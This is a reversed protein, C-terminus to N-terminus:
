SAAATAAVEAAFDVAKKEVGEGLEFRVFRRVSVKEGMKGTLEDCMQKVSRPDDDRFSPQEELCSETIWKDLRGQIIKQKAEEPRSKGSEKEEEAIQAAYLAKQKEVMEPTVDERRVFQASMSAIQLGVHKVLTLFDENKAMFDTQCNVEVLVGVRGGSHIYAHVTGETAIAGGKKNAKDLGRKKLIEVAKEENGSTEVLANKCDMMGAGTRDRLAKVMAANVTM